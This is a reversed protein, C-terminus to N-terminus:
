SELRLLCLCQDDRLKEKRKVDAKRHHKLKTSNKLNIHQKPSIVFLYNFRPPANQVVEQIVKAGSQFVPVPLCYRQSWSARPVHGGSKSIAPCPTGGPPVTLIFVASLFSVLSYHGGRFREGFRGITSSPGFFHLSV